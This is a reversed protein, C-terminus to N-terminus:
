APDSVSIELLVVSSEPTFACPGVVAPLLVVGGRELAYDSGAYAIRGAGQLCVLIRPEEDAGVDFPAAGTLRTVAFPMHNFLQERRIPATDTVVPEVPEIVGQDYNVCALAQNV